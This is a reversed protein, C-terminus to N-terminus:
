RLRALVQAPTLVPVSAGAFGREDRTVIADLKHLGACAAQVNDEFDQGAMADALECAARDVPLLEFTRLCLRVALRARDAGGLRRAVYSVIIATTATVCGILRKEEHARWLQKADAAWPERDLLVDLLINADLLVRM